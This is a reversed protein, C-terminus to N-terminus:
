LGLLQKKKAAFEEETIIGADLLQKFKLLEDASSVQQVNVAAVNDKKKYNELVEQVVNFAGDLQKKGLQFGINERPTDIRIKGDMIGFTDKHVDNVDALSVVKVPEGMLLAKQAYIFRKSTFAIATIGGMVITAGNYVGNPAMAVYVDEDALLNKEIVAFHKLASKGNYSFGNDLCYQDMEKATRM